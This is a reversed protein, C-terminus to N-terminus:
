PTPEDFSVQSNISLDPTEDRLLRAFAEINTPGFAELDIRIGTSPDSLSLRGDSWRTLRYPEDPGIGRLKRDRGLGRLVGRIFGGTGPEVAHMEQKPAIGDPEDSIVAIAVSGDAQDEFYLDRSMEATVQAFENTDVNTFRSAYAALMTVGILVGAGILTARPFPKNHTYSESM